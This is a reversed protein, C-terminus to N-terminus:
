SVTMIGDYVTMICYQSLVLQASVFVSQSPGSKLVSQASVPQLHVEHIVLCFVFILGFLSESFGFPPGVNM